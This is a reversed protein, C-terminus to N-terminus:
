FEIYGRYLNENIMKEMETDSGIYAAFIRNWLAEQQHYLYKSVVSSKRRFSIMNDILDFSLLIEEGHNESTIFFDGIVDLGLWFEFGFDKKYERLKTFSREAKTWHIAEPNIHPEALRPDSVNDKALYRQIIRWQIKYELPPIIGLVDGRLSSIVKKTFENKDEAYYRFLNAYFPVEYLYHLVLTFIELAGGSIQAGGGFEPLSLGDSGSETPIIFIVGLEKLHSIHHLKKGVFQKGVQNWREPLVILSIEREEFDDPTLDKYARFFVDNLWQMPEAFRISSFVTFLGEKEIAEDITHYGLMQLLTRPPNKKLFEIAKEKKMFFGKPPNTIEYALQGITVCGATTATNPKGLFQFLNQDTLAVREQLKKYIEEAPSRRDLGLEELKKQILVTNESMLQEAIGRRGTITSMNSVLEAVIREQSRLIRALKIIDPSTIEQPM